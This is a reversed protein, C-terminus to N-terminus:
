KVVVEGNMSPHYDCHFYYTGADIPPVSYDLSSGAAVDAGIFLDQSASDDEYIALNHLVTDKNDVTLSTEEGAPLEIEDTDFALGEAVIVQTAGGAGGAGGAEEEAVGEGTGFGIVALVVGIVVPYSVVVFLEAMTVADTRQRFAIVASAILINAALALAVTTAAEKPLNLLVQSFLITVLAILLLAGIPVVFVLPVRVRVGSVLDPRSSPPRQSM